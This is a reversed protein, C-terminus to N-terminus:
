TQPVELPLVKYQAMAAESPMERRTGDGLMKEALRVLRVYEEFQKPDLAAAADPNDRATSWDKIHVELMIAGSCVAFAGSYICATHDSFGDHEGHWLVRLNAEDLPTPYASVCHLNTCDLSIPADMGTSVIVPKGYTRCVAVFNPEHAEFSAVKFRRVYPAITTVDEPLYATCMFEIGRRDCEAALRPLWSAPMQYDAYTQLYAPARRREAMRVASSWWQFKVADAGADKAVDILGVAKEFVGDHCSGAEAIIFTPM